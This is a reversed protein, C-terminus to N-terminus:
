TNSLDIIATVRHLLLWALSQSPRYSGIFINGYGLLPDGCCVEESWTLPHDVGASTKQIVSSTRIKRWAVGRSWSDIDVDSDHYVTAKMGLLELVSLSHGVYKGSYGVACGTRAVANVYQLAHGLLSHQTVLAWSRHDLQTYEPDKDRVAKSPDLTRTAILLVGHKPPSSDGEDDADTYYRVFQSSRINSWCINGDEADALITELFDVGDATTFCGINGTEAVWEVPCAVILVGGNPNLQQQVLDIDFVRTTDTMDYFFYDLLPDPAVNTTSFDVSDMDNFIKCDEEISELLGGYAPQKHYKRSNDELLLRKLVIFRGTASLKLFGPHRLHQPMLFSRNGLNARANAIFKRCAETLLIYSKVSSAWSPSLTDPDGTTIALEGIFAAIEGESKTEPDFDGHLVCNHIKLQRSAECLARCCPSSSM